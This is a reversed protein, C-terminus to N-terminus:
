FRLRYSSTRLKVFVNCAHKTKFETLKLVALPIFEHAILSSKIPSYTPCVAGTEFGCATHVRACDTDLGFLGYILLDVTEFGCATHVRACDDKEVIGDDPSCQVFLKLVALPIFEHAILLLVTLLVLLRKEIGTEFGCATHVRACNTFFLLSFLM